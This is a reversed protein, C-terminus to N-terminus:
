GFLQAATKREVRSAGGSVVIDDVGQFGQAGLRSATFELDRRQGRPRGQSIGSDSRAQGHQDLLQKCGHGNSLSVEHARGCSSGMFPELVLDRLVERRM